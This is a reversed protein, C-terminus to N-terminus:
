NKLSGSRTSYKIIENEIKKLLLQVENSSSEIENGGDLLYANIEEIEGVSDLLKDQLEEMNELALIAEMNWVLKNLSIKNDQYSSICEELKTIQREICDNM